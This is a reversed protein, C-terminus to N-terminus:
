AAYNIAPANIYQMAMVQTGGHADAGHCSACTLRMQMMMGGFDPGGAYSIQKGNQDVSTFYIQESNSRYQEKSPYSTSNQIPLNSRLGKGGCASLFFGMLLGTILKTFM